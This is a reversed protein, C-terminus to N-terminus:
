QVRWDLGNGSFSSQITSISSTFSTNKKLAGSNTYLIGSNNPSWCYYGSTAVSYTTPTSGSSPTLYSLYGSAGTILLKNEGTHSWRITNPSTTLAISDLLAGSSANFILISYHGGSTSRSVAIKSDDPSWTPKSMNDTTGVNRSALTTIGSGDQNIICLDNVYNGVNQHDRMFAIKGTASQQCWVAPTVEVSDSSQWSYISRLNSGVAIGGSNVSVDIALISGSPAAVSNTHNSWVISGGTPSWYPYSDQDTTSSATWINTQHTGDTDMVAITQYTASSHGSGTTVTGRYTVAPNAPTSSGSTKMPMSSNTSNPDQRCGTFAVFIAITVFSLLIKM